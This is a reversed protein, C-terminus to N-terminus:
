RMVEQNCGYAIGKSDPPCWTRHLSERLGLVDVKDLNDVTFHAAGLEVLPEWLTGLAFAVLLWLLSHKDM